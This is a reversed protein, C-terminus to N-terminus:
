CEENKRKKRWRYTKRLFSSIICPLSWMLSLISGGLYSGKTSIHLHTWESPVITLSQSKIGRITTSITTEQGEHEHSIYVDVRLQRSDKICEGM